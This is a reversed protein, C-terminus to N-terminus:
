PPFNYNAQTADGDQDWIMAHIDFVDLTDIGEAGFDALWNGNTDSMVVLWFDENPQHVGVGVERESGVPLTGSVTVATEDFSNVSFAEVQLTEITSGDTIIVFMDPTLDFPEWGNFNVQGINPDWDAQTATQSLMLHYGDTHDANNDIYMTIVDGIVWGHSSVWEHDPQAIITYDTQVSENLTFNVDTSGVPINFQIQEEFPHEGCFDRGAVVNVQSGLPLGELSYFGNEDTCTGYGGEETDVGIGGLPNGGIDAVVGSISGAEELTFNINNEEEGPDITVRAADDYYPTENYFEDIWGGQGGWVGVRYDGALLRTIRYEGNANTKGSQCRPNEENDYDCADVWVDPLPEGNFFVTGSVAGSPSFSLEGNDKQMFVTESSDYVACDQYYGGEETIPMNWSDLSIEYLGDNFSELPQGFDFGDPSGLGGPDFSSWPIIHTTQQGLSGFEGEAEETAPHINVQYPLHFESDPAQLFPDFEGTIVPVPDWSLPVDSEISTPAIINRPADVNCRWFVDTSETGPIPNGLIDLLRFTYPEGTVPFEGEFHEFYRFRGVFDVHPSFIDTYHEILRISGDPLEVQLASSVVVTYLELVLATEPPTYAIDQQLRVDAQTLHELEVNPCKTRRRDHHDGNWSGRAFETTVEGGALDDPVGKGNVTVLGELRIVFPEWEGPPVITSYISIDYSDEDPNYYAVLSLPMFADTEPSRMCGGAIYVSPAYPLEMLDNVYLVLPPQSGDDGLEWQINWRGRLDDVGGAEAQAASAPLVVAMIMILSFVINLKKM